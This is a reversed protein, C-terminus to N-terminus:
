RKKQGKRKTRESEKMEDPKRMMDNYKRSIVTATNYHIIFILYIAYDERDREGERRIKRM